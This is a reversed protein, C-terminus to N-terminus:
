IIMFANLIGPQLCTLGELWIIKNNAFYIVAMIAYTCMCCNYVIFNSTVKQKFATIHRNSFTRM